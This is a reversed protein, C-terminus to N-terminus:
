GDNNEKFIAWWTLASFGLVVLIITGILVATMIGLMGCM